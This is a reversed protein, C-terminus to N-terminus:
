TWVCIHPNQTCFWYKIEVRYKKHNFTAPFWLCKKFKSGVGM